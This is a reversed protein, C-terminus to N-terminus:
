RVASLLSFYCFSGAALMGLLGVFESSMVSIRSFHSISFVGGLEASHSIMDDLRYNWNGWWQRM